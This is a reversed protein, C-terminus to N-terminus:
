ARKNKLVSKADDLKKLVTADVEIDKLRFRMGGILDKDTSFSLKPTQGSAKALLQTVKARADNNLVVATQVTGRVINLREDAVDRLGAVFEPFYAIANKRIMMALVKIVLDQAEVGVLAKRLINERTQKEVAPSCLFDRVSADSEWQVLLSEFEAVGQAFADDSVNLDSFAQVYPSMFNGSAM